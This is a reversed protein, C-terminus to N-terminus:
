PAQVPPRFQLREAQIILARDFSLLVACSGSGLHHLADAFDMGQRHLALASRVSPEQEFHLHRVGLLAEFAAAVAETSLRYAGRLVWELELTVTLPV